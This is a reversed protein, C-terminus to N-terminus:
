WLHLPLRFTMSARKWGIKLLLPLRPCSWSVNTANLDHFNNSVHKRARDRASAFTRAPDERMQEIIISPLLGNEFVAIKLREWAFHEPLKNSSATRQPEALLRAFLSSTRLTYQDVSERPHEKGGQHITAIGCCLNSLPNPPAFM